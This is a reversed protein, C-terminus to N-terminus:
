PFVSPWFASLLPQCELIANIPQCSSFLLSFQFWIHFVVPVPVWSSPSIDVSIQVVPGSIVSMSQLSADAPTHAVSASYPVCCLRTCQLPVLPSSLHILQLIYCYSSCPIASLLLQCDPTVRMSQCPMNVPAYVDTVLAIDPDLQTPMLSDMWSILFHCSCLVM